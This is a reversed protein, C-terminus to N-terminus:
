ESDRGCPDVTGACFDAESHLAEFSRLCIFDVDAYFGGLRWLIEYRCIDSKEGWNPAADFAAQNELGLAAVDADSWLRVEWAPMCRMWSERLVQFREPLNSGLWVQ